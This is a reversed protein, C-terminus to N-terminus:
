GPCETRAAASKLLDGRNGRLDTGARSDPQDGTGLGHWLATNFAATDLHDETHFDQGRMAAEWWQADRGPCGVTASVPAAFPGLALISAITAALRKM